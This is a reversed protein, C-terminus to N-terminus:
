QPVSLEKRSNDSIDSSMARCTWPHAKDYPNERRCKTDLKARGTWTETQWQMLFSHYLSPLTLAFSLPFSLHHLVPIYRVSLKFFGLLFGGIWAFKLHLLCILVSSILMHNGYSKSNVPFKPNNMNPNPPVWRYHYLTAWPQSWDVTM